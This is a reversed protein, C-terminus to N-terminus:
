RAISGDVHSDGGDVRLPETPRRSERPKEEVQQPKPSAYRRTCSPCLEIQTFRAATRRMLVAVLLSTFREEVQGLIISLLELCLWVSAHCAESRPGRKENGRARAPASTACVVRLVRDRGRCPRGVRNSVRKQSRTQSATWSPQDCQWQLRRFCRLLQLIRADLM